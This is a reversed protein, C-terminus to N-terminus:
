PQVEFSAAGVYSVEIWVAVQGAAAGVEQAVARAWEISESWSAPQTTEIVLCPERMMGWHGEARVARFGPSPLRPTGTVVFRRLERLILAERQAAHEDTSVIDAEAFLGFCLRILHSNEMPNELTLTSEPGGACVARAPSRARAKLGLAQDAM